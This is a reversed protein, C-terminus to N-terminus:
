ETPLGHEARLTAISRFNSEYSESMHDNYDHSAIGVVEGNENLCPGGSHRPARALAACLRPEPPHVSPPVNEDCNPTARM